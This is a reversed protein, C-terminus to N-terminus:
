LIELTNLLHTTEEVGYVRYAEIGAQAAGDVNLQNDDFFLIREPAVGVQAILYAFMEPDPKLLGIQYSFFCQSVYELIQMEQVFRAYHLENTNSLVALPYTESLAELLDQAGPFYGKPWLTFERLYQEPSIPMNFEVVIREGFESVTLKGSEFERVAPSRLWRRWLEEVSMKGGTWELMRPVGTLEILVGGLDFVILDYQAHKTTNM